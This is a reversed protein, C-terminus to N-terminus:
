NKAAHVLLNAVILPIMVFFGILALGPMGVSLAMMSFIVFMFASGALVMLHLSARPIRRDPRFFEYTRYILSVIAAVSFWGVFNGLPIGFYEGGQWQWFGSSVAIPALYVDAATVVLADLLILLVLMIYQRSRYTPRERGTWLLFSNSFVYSFYIFVAWFAIVVLPVDLLTPGFDNYAYSGGFVVGYRLGMYEFIFGTLMALPMFFLFRRGLYILGHAILLIVPLIFGIVRMGPLLPETLHSGVSLALLLWLVRDKM